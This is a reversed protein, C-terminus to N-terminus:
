RLVNRINLGKRLDTWLVLGQVFILCFMCVCVDVCIKSSNTGETNDSNFSCVLHAPITSWETQKIWVM